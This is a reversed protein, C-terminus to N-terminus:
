KEKGTQLQQKGFDKGANRGKDSDQSCGEPCNVQKRWQIGPSLKQGYQFNCSKKSPLLNKEAKPSFVLAKLGKADENQFCEGLYVLGLGLSLFTRLELLQQIATM